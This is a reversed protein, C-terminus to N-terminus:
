RWTGHFFGLNEMIRWNGGSTLTRKKIDNIFAIFKHKEMLIVSSQSYEPWVLSFNPWYAVM